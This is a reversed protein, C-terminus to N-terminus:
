SKVGSSCTGVELEKLVWILWFGEFCVDFYVCFFDSLYRKSSRGSLAPIQELCIIGKKSRKDKAPRM